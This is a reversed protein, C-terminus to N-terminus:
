RLVFCLVRGYQTLRIESLILFHFSTKAEMFSGTACSLYCEIIMSHWTISYLAKHFSDIYVYREYMARAAEESVIGRAIIDGNPDGKTSPEMFIQIASM